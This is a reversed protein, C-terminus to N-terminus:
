GRRTHAASQPRHGRRPAGRRGDPLADSTRTTTPNRPAPVATFLEVLDDLCVILVAATLGAAAAVAAGGPHTGTGAPWTLGAVAVAVLLGNRLLHWRNLPTERRGFCRCPAPTGRVLAVAIGATLAGLLGLAVGFGAAATGDAILLGPVAAEILALAVAVPAVTRTPLLRLQHLSGTFERLAPRSRLKGLAAVLFVTGLLLRCATTLYM